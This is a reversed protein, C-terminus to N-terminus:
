YKSAKNALDMFKTFMDCLCDLALMKLVFSM